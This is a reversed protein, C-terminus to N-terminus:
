HKHECGNCPCPKGYDGILFPCEVCDTYSCFCDPHETRCNVCLGKPPKKTGQLM